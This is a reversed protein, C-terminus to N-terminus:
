TPWSRGESGLKSPQFTDVHRINNTYIKYWTNFYVSMGLNSPAYEASQPGLSDMAWPGHQAQRGLPNISEPGSLEIAPEILRGQNHLGHASSPELSVQFTPINGGSMYTPDDFFMDNTDINCSGLPLTNNWEWDLTGTANDDGIAKWEGRTTGEGSHAGEDNSMAVLPHSLSGETSARSPISGPSSIECDFCLSHHNLEEHPFNPLQHSSTTWVASGANTPPYLPKPFDSRDSFPQLRPDASNLFLPTRPQPPLDGPGNPHFSCPQPHNAYRCIKSSM